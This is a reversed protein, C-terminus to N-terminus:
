PQLLCCLFVISSLCKCIFADPQDIFLLNKLGSSKNGNCNFGTQHDQCWREEYCEELAPVLPEQIAILAMLLQLFAFGRLQITRHNIM